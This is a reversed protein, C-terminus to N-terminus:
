IKRKSFVIAAAILMIATWIIDGILLQGTTLHSIYHYNANAFQEQLNLMNFPNWKVIPVQKIMSQIILHSLGQGLFTVGLGVSISIASNSGFAALFAVISIILFSSFVDLGANALLNIILSRQHMYNENLNLSPFMLFKIGLTLIIIFIHLFVSYCAVLFIKTGFITFRNSSQIVLQKITGYEFEMTIFSASIVITILLLWQFGAFGSSFYFKVDQIKTQYLNSVALLITLVTLALISTWTSNKHTMKFIEQNLISQM